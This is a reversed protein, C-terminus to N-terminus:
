DTASNLLKSLHQQCEPLQSLETITAQLEITLEEETMKSYDMQPRSDPRGHLFEELRILKDLDTVPMKSIEEGDAIKKLQELLKGKAFRVIKMNEALLSVQADDAKKIARETIEDRKQVWKETKRYKLVVGKSVSCARAITPASFGAMFLKRMEAVKKKTLKVGATV